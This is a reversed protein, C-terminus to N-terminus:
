EGSTLFEAADDFDSVDYQVAVTEEEGNFNASNETNAACAALTLCALIIALTKM